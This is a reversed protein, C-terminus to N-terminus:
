SRKWEKRIERIHRGIVCPNMGLDDACEIHTGGPHAMFWDRVRKRNREGKAKQIKAVVCSM